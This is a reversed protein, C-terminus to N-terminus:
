NQAATMGDPTNVPPRREVITRIQCIFEGRNRYEKNTRLIGDLRSRLPHAACDQDITWRVVGERLFYEINFGEAIAEIRKQLMIGADERPYARKEPFYATVM